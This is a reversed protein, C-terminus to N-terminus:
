AIRELALLEDLRAETQARDLDEGLYAFAYWGAVYPKFWDTHEFPFVRLMDVKKQIHLHCRQCLSVLNWWRCNLKVGDLHHVTLIRWRAEVAYRARPGIPTEDYIADGASQGLASLDVWNWEGETALERVRVPGQHKCYIDCASWEGTWNDGVIYPHECRLCRHGDEIRVLHKITAHWALPYGDSGAEDATYLRLVSM